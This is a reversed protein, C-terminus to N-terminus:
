LSTLPTAKNRPREQSWTKFAQLICFQPSLGPSKTVHSSTLYVTHLCVLPPAWDNYNVFNANILWVNVCCKWSETNTCSVVLLVKLDRGTDILWKAEYGACLILSGIMIDCWQMHSLIGGPSEERNVDFDPCHCLGSSSTLWYIYTSCRHAIRM